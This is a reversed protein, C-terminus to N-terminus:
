SSFEVVFSIIRMTFKGNIHLLMRAAGVYPTYIEEYDSTGPSTTGRDDNELYLTAALL